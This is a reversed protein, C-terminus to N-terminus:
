RARVEYGEFGGSSVPVVDYRSRLHTLIVEDLVASGAFIGPQIALDIEGSLFVRRGDAYWNAMFADLTPMLARAGDEGQLALIQIRLCIAEPIHVYCAGVDYNGATLAVIPAGEAAAELGEAYALQREPEDYHAVFALSVLLAVGIAVASAMRPLCRVTMWAALWHLPLWYAGRESHTALLVFSIYLYPLMGITWALALARYRPIFWAAMATLSIPAAPLLWENWFTVFIAELNHWGGVSHNEIWSKNNAPDIEFEPHIARLLAPIGFVCAAHIAGSVFGPVLLRRFAMGRTMAHDGLPAIAAAALFLPPWLIAGTAHAAYAIGTALGLAIGRGLSPTVALRTACWFAPSALAFFVAHLEVSTAYFVMGPTAGVLATAIAADARDFRLTRFAAHTVVLGLVTSIVSLFSTIQFVSAGLPDFVSRLAACLPLYLFHNASPLHENRVLEVLTTGDGLITTQRLLLYVVAFVAGIGFGDIRRAESAAATM